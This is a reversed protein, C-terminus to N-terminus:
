AAVRARGTAPDTDFSIRSYPVMPLPRGRRERLEAEVRKDGESDDCRCRSSLTMATRRLTGGIIYGRCTECLPFDLSM